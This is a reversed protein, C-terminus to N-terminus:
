IFLRVFVIINSVFAYYPLVIVFITFFDIIKGALEFRAKSYLYGNFLFVVVFISIYQALYLYLYFYEKNNFLLRVIANTEYIDNPFLSLGVMTTSFDLLCGLIIIAIIKQKKNM